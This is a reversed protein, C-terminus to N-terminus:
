NVGYLQHEKIYAFVAPSLLNDVPENDALAQRLRTSSVAVPPMRFFTISGAPTDDLADRGHHSLLSEVEPPLDDLRVQERQTVAIHALQLMDKYRHWTALNHLQDSGMILVLAPDSGLDARLSELTDITYSAGGRDIERSDILWNPQDATALALMARRHEPPTQQEPKQWSQGSPVLRMSTLRLAVEASRALATHGVHVPDFSGGFLGVRERGAPQQSM